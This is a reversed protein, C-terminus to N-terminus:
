LQGPPSEQALGYMILNIVVARAREPPVEHESRLHLYTWCMTNFVVEAAEDLDGKVPRLSGDIAGESLFRAYPEIFAVLTAGHEERFGWHFAKNTATLLPANRDIVDCLRELGLVL